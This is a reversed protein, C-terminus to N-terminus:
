PKAGKVQPPSTQKMQKWVVQTKRKQRRVESSIDKRHKLPIMLTQITRINLCGANYKMLQYYEFAGYVIRARPWDLDTFSKIDRAFSLCSKHKLRQNEIAIASEVRISTSRKVSMVSPLIYTLDQIMFTVPQKMVHPLTKTSSVCYCIPYWTTIGTFRTFSAFLKVPLESKSILLLM